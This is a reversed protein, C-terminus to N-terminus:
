GGGFLRDARAKMEEPSVDEIHTALWWVHGFPDRLKGGRDGYFQDAVPRLRAKPKGMKLLLLIDMFFDM